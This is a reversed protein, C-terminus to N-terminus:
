MEMNLVSTFRRCQFISAAHKKWTNTGILWVERHWLGFSWLITSKHTVSSWYSLCWYKIQCEKVTSKFLKSPNSTRVATTTFLVIKQSIVSHLGNLTLRRKPTVYRRWRWSLFILEALFWCTGGFHRNVSLPSFPTIDWFITSKYVVKLTYSSFTEYWSKWM